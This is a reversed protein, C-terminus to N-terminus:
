ACWSINVFMDVESYRKPDFHIGEPWDPEHEVMWIIREIKKKPGMQDPEHEVM